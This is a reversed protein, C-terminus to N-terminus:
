TVFPTLPCPRKTQIFPVLTDAVQAGGSKALQSVGEGPGPEGPQARAFAGFCSPNGSDIPPDSPQVAFAIGPLSMTPVIVVAAVMIALVRRKM